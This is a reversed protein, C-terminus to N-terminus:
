LLLSEPNVEGVKLEGSSIYGSGDADYNRWIQFHAM